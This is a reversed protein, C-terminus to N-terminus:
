QVACLTPQIIQCATDKANPTDNECPGSNANGEPFLNQMINDGSQNFADAEGECTAIDPSAPNACATNCFAFDPFVAGGSAANLAAAMLQRCCTFQDVGNDPGCMAELASHADDVNVNTILEGCITIGGDLFSLTLAPRNKWFGPTRTFAQTTTTTTSTTTTTTSTTTSSTTTSTTTSTTSSTTTTTTSTTTSSTTTSSTTTTTTTPCLPLDSTQFGGSVLAGNDCAADTGLYGAVQQIVNPTPDNGASLVKIQFEISCFGPPTAVNPPMVISATPTFVIQNPEAAVPHGTSFMVGCDTTITGDGEYEVDGIEETCGLALPVSSDCHMDFRLRDITLKTGGEISGTGITLKVTLVDGIAQCAPADPYDLNVLGNCSFVQPFAPSASLALVACFFAAVAGGRPPSVMWRM